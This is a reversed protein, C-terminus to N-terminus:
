RDAAARYLQSPLAPEAQDLLLALLDALSGEGHDRGMALNIGTLVV